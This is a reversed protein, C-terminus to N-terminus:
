SNPFSAAFTSGRPARERHVVHGGLQRVLRDVIYLGLGAGQTRRTEENGGRHFLDFLRPREEAPIGPGEDHVLVRWGDRAAILEVGVLTDAPAYKCANEVLNAVISRLAEPDSRAMLTDSGEFRLRQGKSAGAHAREAAERVVRAVDIRELALPVQSSEARTALLVKDTLLALRDAEGLAQDMLQRHQEASLGPRGMTQLQLKIAAIPSRLEHTVALLFNRQTRARELDRRIARLTIYLGALLLVLLVVGEGLVMGVGRGSRDMPIGGLAEVDLALRALEADRRLLLVTWWVFQAVVYIALAAFLWLTRRHGRYSM